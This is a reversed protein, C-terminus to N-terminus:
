KRHPTLSFNAAAKLANRAEAEARAQFAQVTESPNLVTRFQLTVTAATYGASDQAQLTFAIGGTEADAAVATSKFDM